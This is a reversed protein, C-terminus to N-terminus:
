QVHTALLYVQVLQTTSQGKSDTVTVNFDYEGNQNGLQLNPTATNAGSIAAPTGSAQTWLFTLPTNGVPSFSGSADLQVTRYITTISNGGAVVVVPPNTTPPPTPQTIKVTVSATDTQGNQGTAICTYTTDQTPFVVFTPNDPRFLVGALTISTAGTTNCALTVKTGPSPSPNPTATFSVVKPPPIVNVNVTATATVSGAANTATLVYNTTGAPSVDQSGGLSLSSGVGNDISVNTANEVVWFLTSTQGTSITPPVASFRIIRPLDGKGVTVAVSCSDTTQGDPGTATITYNTSQTPTVVVNGSNAVTGVGPTITVSSANMTAWNLTASEGVTINAPTAYCYQLKAALPNVVVVATATDTNVSNSATLTYTTTQTPAVPASGSPGVSGIGSINITSANLVKWSLTASQGSTISKPDSLFFLIQVPDARKTTITVRASGQGGHDDKVVLRFVYTQGAVAAFQTIKATPDSLTAVPGVEQIWQFTIPDGDPDYSNSGDLTITGASVNIQNPGADAVPPDNGIRLKKTLVEYRVRPVDVPVAYDVGLMEKPRITNGFQLGVVARGNNGPMLMTENIGGEVTLAVRNSFPFIFRLTGGFRNGYTTSHLYAANGEAYNNKWLGIDGNVGAQDVIKLFSQLLLNNLTAGTVPDTSHVTNILANDLFGKTGFVGVKGRNFLYDLTFAGQGLTGGTQYGSLTVHKFSAFLSTQLRKNLRDVLGVDLQGERDTKFYLYEADAQFAFHQGMPAFFRGKGSFTTNGTNDAGVNIGLLSFKPQKNAEIQKQVANAVETASPPAPPPPPPPQNVKSQLVEQAQKLDNLQKRLDANQDALDKLMKEIDDLKDLRKLVENCCDAAQKAPEIARIAEGAGGEGVVNGQADMVTLAVRRNMWRAEDTRSFTTKQGPYKPDAKGRSTVQIQSAQAGYKVLFDRVANARALGLRNNYQNNGIIDTHGEVRVKYGPNKQLLEALRLLSPFGDVLVSSNFEFNIEEWDTKTVGPPTNIGQAWVGAAALTLFMLLAACKRLM